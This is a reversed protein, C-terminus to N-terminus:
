EVLHDPASEPENEDAVGSRVRVAGKLIEAIGYPLNPDIQSDADFEVADVYRRPLLRRDVAGIAREAPDAVRFSPRSFAREDIYLGAVMAALWGVDSAISHEVFGKRVSVLM